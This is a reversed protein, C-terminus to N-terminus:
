RKNIGTSDRVILEAEVLITAPDCFPSEFECSLAKWLERAARDTPIRVSTLRSEPHKARATDGFGVVSLDVGPTKGMEKIAECVGLAIQDNVCCVATIDPSAKMLELFGNRGQEAGWGCQIVKGELEHARMARDFGDIRARSNLFREDGGLFAIRSHGLGCLHDVAQMLGSDNDCVVSRFGKARQSFLVCPKGAKKAAELFSDPINDALILARSSDLLNRFSEFRGRENGTLNVSIERCGNKQCIESFHDCVPSMFHHELESVRTASTESGSTTLFTILQKSNDRVVSGYGPKKEIVGEDSLVTLARRVTTREVKFRECLVREPPLKSGPPIERLEERLEDAIAKYGYHEM